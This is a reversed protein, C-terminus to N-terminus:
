PGYPNTVRAVAYGIGFLQSYLQLYQEVTSKHIAHVCLASLADTENVPQSVPKGYQLRSGVFVVKAAPNKHRVAELLTLNGGCNVDLDTWPDDMSKVAGSAGALNFVLQQGQVARSMVDQDRLDGEIVRAGRGKLAAAREAHKAISRTVVTVEDGKAVLRETLNVGIFGLGGIVLSKM